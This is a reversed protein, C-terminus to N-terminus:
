KQVFIRKMNNFRKLNLTLQKKRTIVLQVNQCFSLTGLNRTSWVNPAPITKKVPVTIAEKATANSFRNKVFNAVLAMRWYMLVGTLCTIVVRIETHVHCCVNYVSKLSILINGPCERAFSCHRGTKSILISGVLSGSVAVSPRTGIETM